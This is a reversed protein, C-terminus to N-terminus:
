EVAQLNLAIRVGNVLVISQDILQQNTIEYDVFRRAADLPLIFELAESSQGAKTELQDIVAADLTSLERNNPIKDLIPKLRPALFLDFSQAARRYISTSDQNFSSPNTLSLQLAIQGRFIIFSPPAYDVFHYKAVGEAALEDLQVQYKKQLTDLDTRVTNAPPDAQGPPDVAPSQPKPVQSVSNQVVPPQHPPVAERQTDTHQVSAELSATAPPNGRALPKLAEVDFPDRAGLALGFPKGDLYIESRNLVEQQKAADDRAPFNLADSKDVVIALIEKGEYEFGHGHTRIHYAIEFGFADFQDDPTFHERLLPLIPDVVEDFLRGARQNATLLDASYAANYNGTLKLVLRDHFHVFELGRSDAGIQEKPSLGAYRSLAFTFPFKIRSVERNLEMMQGLYAQEAAKIQPNLLEAPGVQGFAPEILWLACLMLLSLAQPLRRVLSLAGSPCRNGGSVKAAQRTSGAAQQETPMNM